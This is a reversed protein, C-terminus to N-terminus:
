RRQRHDPRCEAQETVNLGCLLPRAGDSRSFADVVIKAAEPDVLVNFEAVPTTNGSHNNGYRTESPTICIAHTVM